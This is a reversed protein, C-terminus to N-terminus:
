SDGVFVPLALTWFLHEFTGASWRGDMQRQEGYKSFYTSVTNVTHKCPTKFWSPHPRKRVGKALWRWNHQNSGAGSYSSIKNEFFATRYYFRVWNRCHSFALFHTTGCNTRTSHFPEQLAFPGETMLWGWTTGFSESWLWLGYVALTSGRELGLFTTLIDNFDM